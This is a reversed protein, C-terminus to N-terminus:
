RSRRSSRSSTPRTTCSLSSWRGDRHGGDRLDVGRPRRTTSIRSRSRFTGDPAVALYDPDDDILILGGLAPIKAPHAPWSGSWSSARASSSTPGSSRLMVPWTPSPPTADPGEMDPRRCTPDQARTGDARPPVDLPTTGDDMGLWSPRARSSGPPRPEMEDLVGYSPLEFLIVNDFDWGHAVNYWGIFRIGYKESYQRVQKPFLTKMYFKFFPDRGRRVTFYTALVPVALEIRRPLRRDPPFRRRNDCPTARPEATDARCRRLDGGEDELEGVTKTESASRAGAARASRGGRSAAPLDDTQGAFLLLILVAFLLVASLWAPWHWAVSLPTLVVLSRRASALQFGSAASGPGASPM